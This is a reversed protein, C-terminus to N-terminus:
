FKVMLMMNVVLHFGDCGRLGVIEGLTIVNQTCPDLPLLHASYKSLGRRPGYPRPSQLPPLTHWSPYWSNYQAQQQVPQQTAPQQQPCEMLSYYGTEWTSPCAAYCPQVMPPQMMVPQMMFPQMIPVGALYVDVKVCNEIFTPKMSLMMRYNSFNQM